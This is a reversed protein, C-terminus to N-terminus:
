QYFFDFSLYWLHQNSIVGQYYPDLVNRKGQSLLLGHMKQHTVLPAPTFVEGGFYLSRYLYM